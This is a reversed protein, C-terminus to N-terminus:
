FLIHVRMGVTEQLLAKRAEELAVLGGEDVGSAADLDTCRGLGGDETWLRQAHLGLLGDRLDNAQTGTCHSTSGLGINHLGGGDARIYIRVQRRRWEALSGPRLKPRGIVRRRRSGVIGVQGAAGSPITLRHRHQGTGVLFDPDLSGVTPGYSESFSQAAIRPLCPRPDGAGSRETMCFWAASRASQCRDGGGAPGEGGAALGCREADKGQWQAPGSGSCGCELRPSASKSDDHPPSNSPQQAALHASSARPGAPQPLVSTSATDSPEPAACAERVRQPTITSQQPAAPPPLPQVSPKAASPATASATQAPLSQPPSLPPQQHKEPRRAGPRNSTPM